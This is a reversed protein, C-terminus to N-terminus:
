TKGHWVERTTIVSVGAQKMEGIAHDSDGSERDVGRIADSLLFTRFGYKVSDLATAKVCYDTALGGVYLEEVGHSKLFTGLAQGDKTHGDFASYGDEDPETAKSVITVDDVELDRHFEAGKTDLVCHVPWMGGYTEFHSTVAPHWDRSAVILWGHSKAYEVMRNLPGVVENGQPVPLSGGPCFDNQVDVIILAKKNM